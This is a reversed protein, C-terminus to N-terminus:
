WEGGEGLVAEYPQLRLRRAEPSPPAPGLEPESEFPALCAPDWPLGCFDLIRRLYPDPDRHIDALDLDLVFGPFLRHWHAMLRRYLRFYAALGALDSTFEYGPRPFYKQFMAVCHQLPDRVCHIIRANPLALRIFGVHRFNHPMTDIVAAPAPALKRLDRMYAAGMAAFEAAPVTALPAAALGYQTRLGAVQHGLLPLEGATHIGAHRGLMGELSSKGSRPLGVIFIPPAGPRDAQPLPETYEAFLRELAAFEREAAELSFPARRRQLANGRVYRDFSQQYDCIDDYGKGLAFNLHAQLDEPLDDRGLMREMAAMDDDYATRRVILSLLRHGEADHPDLALARRYSAVAAELRGAARYARGLSRHYEPERPRAATAQEGAVVAEGARGLAELTVCLGSLAAPYGPRLALAKRYAAEAEHLDGLDILANALNHHFGAEGPKLRIAERYSAAADAPRGLAKQAMGRNSYAEAYDPKLEVARAFSSLAREPEGAANLAVGLNCHYQPDGARVYLARSILAVAGAADGQQLRVLGLLHNAAPHSPERDLVRRYQAEAEAMRGAQHSSLGQRM